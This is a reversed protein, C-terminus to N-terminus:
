WVREHVSAELNHATSYRSEEQYKDLIRCHAHARKLTGKQLKHRAKQSEAGIHAFPSLKAFDLDVDGRPACCLSYRHLHESDTCRGM